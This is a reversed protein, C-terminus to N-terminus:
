PKRVAKGPAEAERVEQPAAEFIKYNRNNHEDLEVM